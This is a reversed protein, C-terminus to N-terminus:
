VDDGVEWDPSDPAIIDGLIQVTGKMSGIVPERGRVAVLKAVPKGRKTIVIEEGTQNVRKLLAYCRARFESASIAKSDRM